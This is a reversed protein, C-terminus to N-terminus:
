KGLRAREAMSKMAPDKLQEELTKKPPAYSESRKEPQKHQKIHDKLSV